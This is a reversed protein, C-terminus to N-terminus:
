HVTRDSQMLRLARASSWYVELRRCLGGTGAALLREGRVRAEAQLVASHAGVYRGVDALVVKTLAQTRAFELLLGLDRAEGTLQSIIRAEEIRAACQAPWAAEVLQMHRWHLQVSKRWEHLAEGDDGAFAPAFAERCAELSTGLGATQLSQASDAAGDFPVDALRDRVTQLALSQAIWRGAADDPVMAADRATDLARKLKAVTLAKISQDAHLKTITQQLVDLDRRGSLTRGADRLAINLERFTADGLNPRFFRLLARTKKITKRTAHISVAPEASAAELTAAARELQEACIRRFGTEMTETLKLRYAM